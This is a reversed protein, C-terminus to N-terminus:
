MIPLGNCNVMKQGSRLEFYQQVANIATVFMNVRLEYVLMDVEHCRSMTEDLPLVVESETDFQMASHQVGYKRPRINFKLCKKIPFLDITRFYMIVFAWVPSLRCTATM